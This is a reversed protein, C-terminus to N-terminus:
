EEKLSYLLDEKAIERILYIKAPDGNLIISLFDYEEFYIYSLDKLNEIVEEWSLEIYGLIWCILKLFAKSNIRAAKAAIKMAFMLSKEM